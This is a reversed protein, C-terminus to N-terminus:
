TARGERGSVGGDDVSYLQWIPWDRVCNITDTDLKSMLHTVDQDDGVLLACALQVHERMQMSVDSAAQAWLLRVSGREDGTLSRLRALIQWRNILNHPEEGQTTCLWENLSEAATLAEAARPESRDFYSILSLIRQNALERTTPAADIVSYHEAINPLRSNLLKMHQDEPVVEHATVALFEDKGSNVGRFLHPTELDFPDLLKVDSKKESATLLVLMRWQGLRQLLLSPMAADGPRPLPSGSELSAVVRLFQRLETDSIEDVVLLDPDFGYREVANKMRVLDSIYDASVSPTDTSDMVFPQSDAGIQMMRSSAVAACFQLRKLRTSLNDTPSHRVDLRATTARETHSMVVILGEMLSIQITDPDVKRILPEDFAVEGSAVRLAVQKDVYNEPYVYFSGDVHVTMGDHTRLVLDYVTAGGPILRQPASFDLAALTSIEFSAVNQLLSNDFGAAPDQKQMRHALGVLAQIEKQAQPFSTLPFTITKAQPNENSDLMFQITFPSLIAYSAECDGTDGNVAGLLYLVGGDDRYSELDTRSAAFTTFESAAARGKVQVDVRGVYNKKSKKRGSYITIYGDYLPAKDDTPISAKLNSCKSIQSTFHAVALAEVDM